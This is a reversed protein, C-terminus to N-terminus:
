IKKNFLKKIKYMVGRKREAKYSVQAKKHDIAGKILSKLEEHKRESVGDYYSTVKFLTIFLVSLVEAAVFFRVLHSKVIISSDGLTVMVVISYYLSNLYTKVIDLFYDAMDAYCNFDYEERAKIVRIGSIAKEEIDIVSIFFYFAAFLAVLGFLLVKLEELTTNNNELVKLSSYM